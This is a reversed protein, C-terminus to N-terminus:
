GTRHASCPNDLITHRQGSHTRGATSSGKPLHIGDRRAFHGNFFINRVRQQRKLAFIMAGADVADDVHGRIPRSVLDEVM